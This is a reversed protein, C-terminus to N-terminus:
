KSAESPADVRKGNVLWTQLALEMLISQRKNVADADWQTFVHGLEAKLGNIATKQGIGYAQDLLKTTEVSSKAYEGLKQAFWDGALDNFNNVAQNISSELLTVNGLRYVLAAYADANAACSAPIHGGKPTQPFIHELQFADITTLGKLPSNAQGLVTNEMRGLVYRVRYLPDFASHRLTSFTQKFEAVREQLYPLLTDGVAAAISEKDHLGRLSAAWQAFLRENYKSQIGLTNSYFYFSEIQDALYNLESATCSDGLALLLVLHQRSRYKNIFGIRTVSPYVGGDERLETAKVLDAYRSAVRTLEVALAYPKIEFGLAKKGEASIVWKYIDDERLIGNHHRAMLYYRLFRLPNEEEGARQLHATLEKWKEKIKSFETGKAQSFLLNKVLDMANLGAGRQNITEFIKLASSLNESEIVVLDIKSLFYRTYETLADLGTQLYQSLNAKIREYAELMKTISATKESSPVQKQILRSLFDKSEEYQLELRLKVEGSDVDFSSLWGQISQFYQEQREDRVQDKLLDRLACMTLVITTLRQQGDIVDYRDANKVIIVSGIFYSSQVTAGPEFENAIDVLFQEVQDDVKWVYERQYDPVVFFYGKLKDITHVQAKIEM